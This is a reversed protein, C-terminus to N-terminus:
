FAGPQLARAGARAAARLSNWNRVVEVSRWAEPLASVAPTWVPADGQVVVLAVADPAVKGTQVALKLGALAVCGSAPLGLGLARALQRAAEEAGASGEAGLVQPMSELLGAAQLQAFAAETAEVLEPESGDVVVWDPPREGLLEGIELDLTKLGEFVLPHPRDAALLGELAAQQVAEQRDLFPDLRVPHAGLASLQAAQGLDDTLGVVPVDAAAAFSAVPLALAGSVLVRSQLKGQAVLLAAARDHLQGTLQRSEDKVLLGRLGAWAALRPSGYLPTM